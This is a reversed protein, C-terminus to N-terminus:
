RAVIIPADTDFDQLFPVQPHQTDETLQRVRRRVYVEFDLLSIGKQGTAAAQGDIAELLAKTFAGHGQEPLELSVESGRSSAFVMVGANAGLVAKVLEENTAASGSHCADLLVIVRKSKQSLQTLRSLVEPWPLATNAVDNRNVEHTAFYFNREDGRWGHGSLLLMVTDDRTARAILSDLATKVAERTAQENVLATVESDSYLGRQRRLAESLATADADAFRLNLRPDQYRSVGVCLGLLRGAIAATKDRTFLVEDRASQLGDDDFAVAQVKISVAGRPLPLTARFRRSVRHISPIDHSDDGIPRSSAAIAKADAAIAKADASIPKADAAIPRSEAVIPKAEVRAGNVFFAVSKIDSDDSADVVVTAVEGIVRNNESTTFSLLPPVPGKLDEVPPLPRGALAQKVLDPRYYRAQFSEAPFSDWGLRFQVYRDAAASGMYYGEPTAVLYDNGTTPSAVASTNASVPKSNATIAKAGATIAKADATISKTAAQPALAYLTALQQGSNGRNANIDWLKVQDEGGSVLLDSGRVFCLATVLGSHGVLTQRLAGSQTDWVRILRDSGGVLSKGDPSFSLCYLYGTRPIARQLKGTQTNWLKISLDDGLAAIMTGDPSFTATRSMWGEHNYGSLTQQVAGSRADWLKITGDLSGSLLTQENPSFAVTTVKKQHGTLTRLCVGSAVDWLKITGDDAGSAVTKGDPSFALQWVRGQHGTLDRLLAGSRADWVKISPGSGASVLLHGDPSFVAAMVIGAHPLTRKLEGSRIDWLFVADEEDAAALTSQDPSMAVSFVTAVRGLMGKQRGSALNWLRVTKDASGSALTSGDPTFAINYIPSNHGTLTQRLTGNQLEWLRILRDEGAAALRSGDPSFSLALLEDTSGTLRKQLTGKAADWLQVSNDDGGTALMRGNASLAVAFPPGTLANLTQKLTGSAVDWIKAESLAAKTSGGAQARNAQTRSSATALTRGDASFHVSFVAESHGSLTRLVTGSRTDWLRVTKDEGGGALLAGDPSFALAYVDGAPGTLPPLVTGSRTDWRRVSQYASAAVVRGDPSLAVSRARPAFTKWEGTEFVRRLEGSSADWLRVSQDNSQSVVLAGDASVVMSQVPGGHGVRLDLQPQPALKWVRVGSIEITAASEFALWFGISGAGAATDELSYGGIQYEQWQPTLNLEQQPSKDYPPSGIEVYAGMRASDPSRLWAKILLREGARLNVKFPQSLRTQWPASNPPHKAVVRLAHAFPGAQAPVVTATARNQDSTFAWGKLGDGFGGNSVLNSPEAAHACSSFFLYLGIVFRSLIPM